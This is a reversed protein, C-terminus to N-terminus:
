TQHFSGAAVQRVFASILPHPNEETSITQPVFLTGIYFPHGKLEVIRSEGNDDVGVTLLGNEALAQQYAPNLGFNCYYRETIIDKRYIDFITSESDNLVIKLEQGALSCVLRNVVLKSAYPDYEAHEADEIGLINRAYEIVIHQYGGCTGLLPRGHTRAYAIIKLAGNMNAYPSGPAIWFGHCRATVDAFERDARDTEIWETEVVVGLRASAHAIARDTAVHPEFAANYEGIIGIRM